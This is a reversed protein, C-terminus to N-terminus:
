GLHFDFVDPYKFSYALQQKVKKNDIIKDSAQTNEAGLEPVPHDSLKAMQQYFTGKEPHNDACGNYTENWAQQNIVQEIIGICDDLHIM